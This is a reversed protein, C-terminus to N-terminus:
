SALGGKGLGSYHIAELDPPPEYFLDLDPNALFFIVRNFHGAPMPQYDIFRIKDPSNLTDGRVINTALISNASALFWTSLPLNPRWRCTAVFELMRSRAERVNEQDIDVGYISSLCILLAFEWEELSCDTPQPQISSVKRELIAVLFNGDGAAPELFKAGIQSFADPILDLMARVERPQTFVEGQDKVRKRSKHHGEWAESNLDSRRDNM